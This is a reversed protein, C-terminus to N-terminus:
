QAHARPPTIVFFYRYLDEYITLNNKLPLSIIGLLKGSYGDSAAVHTVGYKVLKENQDAHLKHGFYEAYYPTPNLQHYTHRRRQQVYLPAVSNLSRRERQEGVIIDNARLLGNITRRGYSPGVQLFCYMTGCLM